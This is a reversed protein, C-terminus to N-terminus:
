VSRQLDWERMTREWDTQVVHGPALGRSGEKEKAWLDASRNAETDDKLITAKVAPKEGPDPWCIMEVRRGHADGAAAVRGVPEGPTPDELLEKLKTGECTNAQRALFRQQRADHAVAAPIRGSDRMLGGRPTARQAGLTSRAQGNLVLQLDDHPSREKPDWWFESGYRAVAQVCAIQVARECPPVVGYTQTLSRLRPEAASGKKM